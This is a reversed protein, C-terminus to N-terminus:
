SAKRDTVRNTSKVPVAFCDGVSRRVYVLDACERAFRPGDTPGFQKEYLELATRWCEYPSKCEALLKRAKVPGIGPLGPVNDVPDGSLIQAYLNLAAERPSVRVEEKTVFNYHRGPIQMLDKDISCIISAEPAATAAIGMLDDAEEGSSVIAGRDVLQQRIAKLHTPRPTGARNGKYEARTARATRFNGVGSLYVQAEPNEDAYRAVIDKIMVSAILLAQDEPQVDKRSWIHGVTREADAKAEAHSDFEGYGTLTSSVLYKTKESAFAARYAICDGDILLQVM